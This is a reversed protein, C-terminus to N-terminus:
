PLTHACGQRLSSVNIAPRLVGPLGPDVFSFTVTRYGFEHCPLTWSAVDLWQSAASQEPRSQLQVIDASEVASDEAVDSADEASRCHQQNQHQAVTSLSRSTSGNVLAQSNNLSVPAPQPAQSFSIPAPHRAQPPSSTGVGAHTLCSQHARCSANLGLPQCRASDHSISPTADVARQDAYQSSACNADLGLSPQANSCNEAQHQCVAEDVLQEQSQQEPIDYAPAFSARRVSSRRMDPSSAYTRLIGAHRSIGSSATAPTITHKLYFKRAQHLQLCSVLGQSSFTWAM